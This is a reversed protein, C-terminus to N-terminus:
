GYTFEQKRRKAERKVDLLLDKDTLGIECLHRFMRLPSVACLDACIFIQAMTNKTNCFFGELESDTYEFDAM